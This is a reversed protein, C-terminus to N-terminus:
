VKHLNYFINVPVVVVKQKAQFVDLYDLNAKKEDRERERRTPLIRNIFIIMGEGGKKDSVRM